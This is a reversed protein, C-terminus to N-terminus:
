RNAVGARKFHKREKAEPISVRRVKEEGEPWEKKAKRRSLMMYREEKFPSDLGWKRM